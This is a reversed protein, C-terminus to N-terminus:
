GKRLLKRYLRLAFPVVVLMLGTRLSRGRVAVTTMVRRDAWLQEIMYHHPSTCSDMWRFRSAEHFWQINLLELQVGPSYQAYSEDFAIKASFLGEGSILTYKMAIARGDLRLAHMTLRGREFASKTVRDYYRKEQTHNVIATGYRGKWSRDELAYFENLWADLDDGTKLETLELAGLESLRRYQRRYEKRRKGSIANELYTEASESPLLLAREYRGEEAFRKSNTSLYEVLSQWFPGDGSINEFLAIAGSSDQSDLWRFFGELAQREFGARILPTCLPCHTHRWLAVVPVPFRHFSNRTYVPFAGILTNERNGDFNGYVFVIRINHHKEGFEEWAPLLMWSEYFVNREVASSALDDWDAVYEQAESPSYVCVARVDERTMQGSSLQPNHAGTERGAKADILKTSVTGM